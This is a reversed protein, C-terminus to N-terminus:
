LSVGMTVGLLPVESETSHRSRRESGKTAKTGANSVSQKSRPIRPHIATPRFLGPQLLHDFRWLALECDLECDAQRMAEQFVKRARLSTPSGAWTSEQATRAIIEGSM